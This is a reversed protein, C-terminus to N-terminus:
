RSGVLQGRVKLYDQISWESDDEKEESLVKGPNTVLNAKAKAEEKKAFKEEKTQKDFMSKIRPFVKTKYIKKWGDKNDLRQAEEIDEEAIQKLERKVLDLFDSFGDYGEAVLESNTEKLINNFTEQAQRTADTNYRNKLSENETELSRVKSRLEIIAKDYDDIVEVSEETPKRQETVFKQFDSLLTRLQEQTENLSKQTAKRREREEHLAAYPVMKDDKNEQSKEPEKEAVEEPPETKYEEVPTTEKAVEEPPAVTEEPTVVEPTPNAREYLAERDSFISVDEPM